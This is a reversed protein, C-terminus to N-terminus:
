KVKGLKIGHHKELYKIYDDDLAGAEYLQKFYATPDHMANVM